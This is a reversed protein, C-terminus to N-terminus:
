GLKDHVIDYVCIDYVCIDYVCSKSICTDLAAAISRIKIRRDQKIMGDIQLFNANTTSSMKDEAAPNVAFAREAKMLSRVGNIYTHRQWLTSEMCKLLNLAFKLQLFTSLM